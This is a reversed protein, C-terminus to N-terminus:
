AGFGHRILGCVFFECLVAGFWGFLASASFLLAFCPLASCLPAFVIVGGPVFGSWGFEFTRFSVLRFLGCWDLFCDYPMCVQMHVFSRRLDRDEWDSMAENLQGFLSARLKDGFGLAEGEM